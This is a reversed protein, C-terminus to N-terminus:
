GASCRRKGREHRKDAAPPAIETARKRRQRRQGDGGRRRQGHREGQARHDVETKEFSLPPAMLM